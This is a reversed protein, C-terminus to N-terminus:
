WYSNSITSSENTEVSNRRRLSNGRIRVAINANNGCNGRLGHFCNLTAILVMSLNL